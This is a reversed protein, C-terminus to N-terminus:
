DVAALRDICENIAFGSPLLDKGSFVESCVSYPNQRAAAAVVAVAVITCQSVLLPRDVCVVPPPRLFPRFVSVGANATTTRLANSTEVARLDRNAPDFTIFALFEHPIAAFFKSISISVCM